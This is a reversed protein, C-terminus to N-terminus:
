VYTLFNFKDTLFSSCSGKTFNELPLLLKFRRRRILLSLKEKQMHKLLRCKGTEKEKEGCVERLEEKLRRLQPWDTEEGDMWKMGMERKEGKM